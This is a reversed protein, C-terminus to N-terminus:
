LAERTPTVEERAEGCAADHLSELVRIADDAKIERLQLNARTTVDAYGGAWMEAVDAVRQLQAASHFLTSGITRATSQLLSACARLRNRRESSEWEGLVDGLSKGSVTM